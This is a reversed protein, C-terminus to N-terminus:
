DSFTLVRTLEQRRMTKRDEISALEFPAAAGAGTARKVSRRSRLTQRLSRRSVDNRELDAMEIGDEPHEVAGTSEPLDIVAGEHDGLLTEVQDVKLDKFIDIVPVKEDNNEEDTFVLNEQGVATSEMDGEMYDGQKYDEMEGSELVDDPLDSM